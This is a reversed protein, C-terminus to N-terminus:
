LLNIINKYQQLLKEIEPWRGARTHQNITSTSKKLTLAAAQQTQGQLLEFIVSAQKVTMGAFIANIYSAIVQLGENAMANGCTIALRQGTNEMGDFTRGSLLFAEGTATGLKRVPLNVQGIGISVRVDVTFAGNEATVSIAATRSLLATTLAHHANKQYLQFSDGRYFEYKYPAFVQQLLRQLKKENAAALRTSNVIDGTIVAQQIM